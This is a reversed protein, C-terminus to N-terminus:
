SNQERTPHVSRRCADQGQFGQCRERKVRREKILILEKSWNTVLELVGATVGGIQGSVTTSRHIFPYLLLCRLFCALMTHVYDCM